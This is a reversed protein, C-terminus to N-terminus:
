LMWTRVTSRFVRCTRYCRCGQLTGVYRIPDGACHGLGPAPACRCRWRRRHATRSRRLLAGRLRAILWRDKPVVDRYWEAVNLQVCRLAGVRYRVVGRPLAAARALARVERLAVSLTALDAGDSASIDNVFATARAPRGRGSAAVCRDARGSVDNFADFAVRRDDVRCARGRPRRARRGKGPHALSQRSAVCRHSDSARSGLSMPSHSTFPPWRRSTWSPRCRSTSRRRAGVTRRHPDDRALRRRRIGGEILRDRAATLNEADSGRLKESLGDLVTAIGWSLQNM